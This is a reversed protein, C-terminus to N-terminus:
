VCTCRASSCTYQPLFNFFGEAGNLAPYIMHAGQLGGSSFTTLTCGPDVITSQMRGMDAAQLNGNHGNVLDVSAGIFWQSPFLRACRKGGPTVITPQTPTIPTDPYMARIEQIDTASLGDRQGIATGQWPAKPRITYIGPNAAFEYQHYHMISGFDYTTGFTSGDNYTLFNNHWLAPINSWNIEVYTDRDTRSQEHYFGIAHMLEHVITGHGYCGSGLTLKQSGGVMGIYSSCGPESVIDVYNTEFVRQQFRVANSTKVSIDSMANLINQRVVSDFNSAIQYYVIGNPWRKAFVGAKSISTIKAKIDADTDGPEIIGAIDGEFLRSEEAKTPRTCGVEGTGSSLPATMAACILSLLVIGKQLLQM